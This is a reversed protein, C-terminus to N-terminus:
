YTEDRSQRQMERRRRAVTNPDWTGAFIEECEDENDSDFEVSDEDGDTSSNRTYDERGTSADEWSRHTVVRESELIFKGVKYKQSQEKADVYKWGLKRLCTDCNIDAVVHWGTVLQRNEKAGVRINLLTQEAPPAPPAVLYARGHSGTFGKSIIQNAFAIDTSCALCQLTDPAARFLRTPISDLHKETTPSSTPTTAASSVASPSTPPSGLSADSAASSASSRRRNRIFPINLSPLLYNAFLPKTASIFNDRGM